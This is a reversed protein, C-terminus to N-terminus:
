SLIRQCLAREGFRQQALEDIAAQEADVVLETGVTHFEDMVPQRVHYALMAVPFPLPHPCPLL